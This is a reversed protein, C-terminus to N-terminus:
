DGPHELVRQVKVLFLFGFVQLGTEAAEAFVAVDEQDLEISFSITRICTKTKAGSFTRTQIMGGLRAHRLWVTAWVM